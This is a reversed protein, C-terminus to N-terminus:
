TYRLHAFLWRSHDTPVVKGDMYVRLMAESEWDLIRMIWEKSFRLGLLENHGGIRPSHSTYRCGQPTASQVLHLARQICDNLSPHMVSLPDSHSSIWKKLLSVPNKETWAGCMPYRIILPRRINKGKWRLIKETVGNDEISVDKSQIRSMSVARLQFVFAFISGACANADAQNKSSLCLRRDDVNYLCYM